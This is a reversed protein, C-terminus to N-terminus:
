TQFVNKPKEIKLNQVRIEIQLWNSLKILIQFEFHKIQVICELHM